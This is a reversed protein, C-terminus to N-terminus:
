NSNLNNTELCKNVQNLIKEKNRKKIPKVPIGAYLTWPKLKIKTSVLSLSGIVTGEPIRVNPLLICNGGIGTFNELVVDGGTKKTTRFKKPIISTVEEEFDSTDCYVRTGSGIGSFDGMKCTFNKGGAITVHSAIHSFRGVVLKTSVYSFDDLISYDGIICLEPHRIRITKTIITNKGLSKFKNIDFFINNNM